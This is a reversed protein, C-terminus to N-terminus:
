RWRALRAERSAAEAAWRARNVSGIPRSDPMPHETVDIAFVECEHPLLASKPLLRLHAVVHFPSETEMWEVNANEVWFSPEHRKGQCTMQEVDLFQLAFEFESMRDDEDVHRVLEDRLCNPTKQLPRSPNDAAPILSYKVVEGAGHTFPVTSWYRLKQYPLRPTQRTQKKIIQLTRRLSRKDDFSMALFAKAKELFGDAFAVSAAVVFAHADNTTFTPASNMAFDVRTAGSASADPPVEISFSCARLEADTDPLHRTGANAFRVFASYTGPRAFLGRALRDALARNGVANTVDLVEFKARVCVGKAHTGRALPQGSAKAVRAQNALIARKITEIDADETASKREFEALESDNHASTM